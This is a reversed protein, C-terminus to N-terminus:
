ADGAAERTQRKKRGPKGPKGPQDSRSGPVGAADLASEMLIRAAAARTPIVRQLRRWDDIRQVLAESIALSVRGSLDDSDDM